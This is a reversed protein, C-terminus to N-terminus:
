CFLTATVKLNYTTIPIDRAYIKVITPSNSELTNLSTIMMASNEMRWSSFSMSSVIQLQSWLSKPRFLQLYKILFKWKSIPTSTSSSSLAVVADVNKFNPNSDKISGCWVNVHLPNERKKVYDGLFPQVNGEIFRQLTEKDIDVQDITLSRDALANRMHVFFKM